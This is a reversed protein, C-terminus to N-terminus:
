CRPAKHGCVMRSRARGGGSGCGTIEDSFDDRLIDGGFAVLLDDGAERGLGVAVQVETVCLGDAQIETDGPLVAAHAVQPEVVGVRGLLLDFVDLGDDGVDLPEDGAPGVMAEAELGFARM